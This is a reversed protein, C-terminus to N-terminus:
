ALRYGRQDSRLARQLHRGITRLSSPDNATLLTGPAFHLHVDTRQEGTGSAAPLRPVRRSRMAELLSINERTQEPPMVYEGATLAAPVRDRGYPGTVLGGEAFKSVAFGLGVGLLGLGPLPIAGFVADLKLKAAIAEAVMQNIVGLVSSALSNFASKWREAGTLTLDTIAATVGSYASLIAGSARREAAEKERAAQKADETDRFRLNRLHGFMGEYQGQVNAFYTTWREELQDVFSIESAADRTPGTDPKTAGAGAIGANMRAIKAQQEAYWADIEAERADLGLRIDSSAESFRATFAKSFEVALVEGAGKGWIFFSKFFNGLNVAKAGEVLSALLDEWRKGFEIVYAAGIRLARVVGLGFQAIRPSAANITGALDDLRDQLPGAFTTFISIAAEELASQVRKAAGQVTAQQRAYADWAATTGTVGETLRDLREIQRGLISVVNAGRADMERFAETGTIGREALKRLVGALGETRVNLGDLVGSLAGGGRLIETLSSRLYIGASAAEIGNDALIGIAAITEELSLGFESALSGAGKMSEAIRDISLRSQQSAAAFTNAVRAAREFPIDFANLASVVLEATQAMDANESGALRLVSEVGTIAKEASGTSRAIVTMADAVQSASYSTASGLGRARQEMAAMQSGTAKTVSGINAMSQEFAAGTRIVQGAIGATGLAVGIPAAAVLLGKSWKAWSAATKTLGRQFDADQLGLLLLSRFSSSM